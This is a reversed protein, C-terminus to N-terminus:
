ISAPPDARALYLAPVSHEPRPGSQDPHWFRGTGDRDTLDPTFLGSECTPKAPTVDRQTHGLVILTDEPLDDNQELFTRLEGLRLGEIPVAVPHPWEAHAGSSTHLGGGNEEILAAEDGSVPFLTRGCGDFATTIRGCLYHGSPLGLTDAELLFLDGSPVGTLGAHTGAVAFARVHVFYSPPM